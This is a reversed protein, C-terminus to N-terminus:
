PRDPLDQKDPESFRRRLFAIGDLLAAILLLPLMALCFGIPWTLIAWWPSRVHWVAAATYSAFFVGWLIALFEILTMGRAAATSRQNGM